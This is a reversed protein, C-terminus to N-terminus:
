AKSTFAGIHWPKSSLFDTYICETHGTGWRKLCPPLMRNSNALTVAFWPVAFQFVLTRLPGADLLAICIIALASPLVQSNAAALASLSFHCCGFFTAGLKAHFVDFSISALKSPMTGTQLHWAWLCAFGLFCALVKARLQGPFLALGALLLYCSLEYPLSWLSGNVATPKLPEIRVRRSAVGADLLCECEFFLRPHCQKELLGRDVRHDACAGVSGCM